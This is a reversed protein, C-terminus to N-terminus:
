RLRKQEVHQNVATLDPRERLLAILDEADRHAAGHDEILTRLLVLDEPTDLTIRLDSADGSRTIAIHPRAPRDDVYFYPTVHEREFGEAANADAERLASASFVEFDLGRPYTRELTNSVYARPNDSTLFAEIGRRIVAGDILPCDATVRVVVDLDYAAAAGAFRGLVDDEGGRHVDVGLAIAEAVVPDDSGNVTTAVIVPVGAGRARTVHHALMSLGGAQQLVKGPLRTSTMRAQTVIGIRTM